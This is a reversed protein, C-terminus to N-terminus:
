SDNHYGCPLYTALKHYCDGAVHEQSHRSHPPGTYACRM